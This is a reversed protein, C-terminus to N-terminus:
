VRRANDRIRAYITLGAGLIALGALVYQAWDLMDAVPLLAWRAEDVAQAADLAVSGATAAGAVVGGAITRSQRLPKAPKTFGAMALGKDIVADSYPQQGNEHRIIAVVLKRMTAYDHLDLPQAPQFGTAVSVSRIYAETNNEHSPAYRPIIGDLTNIGYRDFYNTLLVAMARIGYEPSIFVEFERERLQEPTRQELTARGQWRNSPDFRLNGPNNSRVGRPTM